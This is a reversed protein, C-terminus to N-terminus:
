FKSQEKNETYAYDKFTTQLFTIIKNQQLDHLFLFLYVNMM